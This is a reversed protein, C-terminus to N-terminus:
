KVVVVKTRKLGQGTEQDQLQLVYTGAPFAEVDLQFQQEQQDIPIQQMLHGQLSYISLFTERHWNCQVRLSNRVPNPHVEFQGDFFLDEVGVAPNMEEMGILASPMTEIIKRVRFYDMLVPFSPSFTSVVFHCASMLHPGIDRFETNVQGSTENAFRSVILKNDTNIHPRLSLDVLENKPIKLLPYDLDTAFGNNFTDTLIVILNLLSDTSAGSQYRFYYREITTDASSLGFVANTSIQIRFDMDVSDAFSARSRLFKFRPGPNMSTSAFNLLGDATNLTAYEGIPEWKSTDVSAAEFNDFFLFISDGNEVNDADPNGYYMRFSLQDNAAMFPIKLWVTNETSTAASDVYHFLQECGPLVFRLDDADEQLKGQDFLEGTNITISVACDEIAETNSNNITIEKFFTWGPLCTDQAYSFIPFLLLLLTKPITNKM